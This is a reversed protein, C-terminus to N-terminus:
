SKCVAEDVDDPEQPLLLLNSERKLCPTVQVALFLRRQRNYYAARGVCAVTGDMYEATYDSDRFLGSAIFTEQATPFFQLKTDPNQELAANLDAIVPRLAADLQSAFAEKDCFNQYDILTGVFYWDTEDRVWARRPGAPNIRGEFEERLQKAFYAASQEVIRNMVSM